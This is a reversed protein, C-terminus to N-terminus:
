FYDASTVAGRMSRAEPIAVGVEGQTYAALGQLGTLGERLTAYDAPSSMRNVCDPRGCTRSVAVRVLREQATVAAFPSFLLANVLALAAIAVAMGIALSGIVWLSFAPAHVLSRVAHRLSM